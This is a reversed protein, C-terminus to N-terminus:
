AVQATSKRWRHAFYGVALVGLTGAALASILELYTGLQIAMVTAIVAGVGLALRSVLIRNTPAIIAATLVVLIASLATGFCIVVREATPYWSAQCFGSIVQDPPCFGDVIGLIYIGVFLAVYWALICAPIIATWRLVQIM